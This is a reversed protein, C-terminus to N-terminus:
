RLMLTQVVHEVSESVLLHFLESFSSGTAAIALVGFFLFVISETTRFNSSDAEM